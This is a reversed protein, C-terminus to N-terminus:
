GGNGVECLTAHRVTRTAGPRSVYAHCPIPCHVDVHWLLHGGRLTTGPSQPLKIIIIACLGSGIQEVISSSIPYSVVPADERAAGHVKLLGM